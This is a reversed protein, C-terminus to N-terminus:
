TLGFLGVSVRCNFAAWTSLCSVQQYKGVLRNRGNDHLNNLCYKEMQKGGQVGLPLANCPKVGSPRNEFVSGPESKWPESYCSVFFVLGQAEKLVRRRLHRLMILIEM